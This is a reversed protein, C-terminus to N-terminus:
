MGPICQFHKANSTALMLNYEMSSHATQVLVEGQTARFAPRIIDEAFWRYTSLGAAIPKDNCCAALLVLWSLSYGSEFASCIAIDMGWDHATQICALISALNPMLFPKLAYTSVGRIDPFKKEAWEVLSEDLAVSIGCADFFRPTEFIDRLPEEFYAIQIPAIRKGFATAEPLSFARNADLRIEIQPGLLYRIEHLCEAELAPNRGVKFKLTKFGEAVLAQAELFTKPTLSDMMAALPIRTHKFPPFEFDAMERALKRSTIVEAYGKSTALLESQYLFPDPSNLQRRKLVLPRKLKLTFPYSLPQDPM